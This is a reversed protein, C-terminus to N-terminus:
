PSTKDIQIIVKTTSWRKPKYIYKEIIM